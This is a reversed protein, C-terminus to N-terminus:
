TRGLCATIIKDLLHLRAATLNSEFWVFAGLFVLNIVLLLMFAPPLTALLDGVKTSLTAWIGGPRESV